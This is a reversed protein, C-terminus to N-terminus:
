GEEEVGFVVEFFADEVFLEDGSPAPPAAVENVQPRHPQVRGTQSPIRGPTQYASLTSCGRFRGGV